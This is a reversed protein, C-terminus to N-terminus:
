LGFIFVLVIAVLALPIFVEPTLVHGDAIEIVGYLRTCITGTLAETLKM